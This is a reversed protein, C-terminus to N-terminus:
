FFAREKVGQLGAVRWGKFFRAISLMLTSMCRMQHEFSADVVAAFGPFWSQVGICGFYGKVSVDLVKEGVRAESPAGAPAAAAGAAGCAGGEPAADWSPGEGLPGRPGPGGGPGSGSPDRDVGRCLLLALGFFGDWPPGELAVRLEGNGVSKEVSAVVVGHHGWGAISQVTLVVRRRWRGSFCWCSWLVTGPPGAAPGSGEPDRGPVAAAAPELAPAGSPQPVPVAGSSLLVAPTSLLADDGPWM